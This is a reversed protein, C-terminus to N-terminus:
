HVWVGQVQAVHGGVAGVDAKFVVRPRGELEGYQLFVRGARILARLRDEYAARGHRMPDYGVEGIVM